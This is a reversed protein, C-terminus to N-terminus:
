WMILKIIRIIIWAIRNTLEIKSGSVPLNNERCFVILEGKLYYFDCFAKSDLNKDLVPREAM